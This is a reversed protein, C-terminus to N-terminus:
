LNADENLRDENHDPKEAESPFDLDVPKGIEVEIIQECAHELDNGIGWFLQSAIGVLIALAVILATWIVM